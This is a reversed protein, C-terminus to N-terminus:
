KVLQMWSGFHEKSDITFKEGEPRRKRKYFGPRLAIVELKGAPLEAKMKQDIPVIEPAIDMSPKAMPTESTKVESVMPRPMTQKLERENAM